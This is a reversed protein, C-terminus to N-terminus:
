SQRTTKDAEVKAAAEQDLRIQEATKAPAQKTNDTQTASGDTTNM